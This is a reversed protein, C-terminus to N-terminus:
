NPKRGLIINRCDLTLEDLHPALAKAGLLDLAHAAADRLPQWEEHTFMHQNGCHFAAESLDNSLQWVKELAARVDMPLAKGAVELVENVPLMKESWTECAPCSPISYRQVEATAALFDLAPIALCVALIRKYEDQGYWEWLRDPFDM